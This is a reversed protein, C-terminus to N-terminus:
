GVGGPMGMTNNQASNFLNNAAIGELGGSPIFQANQPLFTPFLSANPPLGSNSVLGANPPLGADIAAISEAGGFPDGGMSGFGSGGPVGMSTGPIGPIPSDFFASPFAANSPLGADIAGISEGPIGGGIGQLLANINSDGGMSGLEESLFSQDGGGMAAPCGNMGPMAGGSMTPMGGFEPGVGIGINPILPIGAM